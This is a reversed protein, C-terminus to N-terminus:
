SIYIHISIKFIYFNIIVTLIYNYIKKKINNNINNNNNNKKQFLNLKDNYIDLLLTGVAVLVILLM